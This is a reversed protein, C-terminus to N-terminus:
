LETALLGDPVYSRAVVFFLVGLLYFMLFVTRTTGILDLQDSQLALAGAGAVLSAIVGSFGLLATAKSDLIDQRDLEKQYEQESIELLSRATDEEYSGSKPHRESYDKAM